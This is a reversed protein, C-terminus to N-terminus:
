NEICKLNEIFFDKPHFIEGNLESAIERKIIYDITESTYRIRILAIQSKKLEEISNKMFLFSATTIRVNAANTEDRVVSGCNGEEAILLTLIKGNELQVYIKSARDFCTAKMFDKSKQLTQINLMPTGSVNALSFFIYSSNGGFNKEYVIKQKTEKFTGISDTFSTGYECPKQAYLGAQIMLFAVLLLRKM